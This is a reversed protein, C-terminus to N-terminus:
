FSVPHSIIEERWCSCYCDVYSVVGHDFLQGLPSSSNTRRAQKGDMCDFTYYMFLCFGNSFYLWRPIPNEGDSELHSPLYITSLIFTLLCFCGGLVTVLNPALWVPLLETLPGWFKPSLQSDLFTYSGGKYKHTQIQTIGDVTLVGHQVPPEWFWVHLKRRDKPHDHEVDSLASDTDSINYM